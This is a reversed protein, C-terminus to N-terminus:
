SRSCGELEVKYVRAGANQIWADLTSLPVTKVEQWDSVVEESTDSISLTFSSKGAFGETGTALNRYRATAGARRDECYVIGAGVKSVNCTTAPLQITMSYRNGEEGRENFLRALASEDNQARHFDQRYEVVFGADTERFEFYTKSPADKGCKLLVNEAAFTPFALLVLTLLKMAVGTRM